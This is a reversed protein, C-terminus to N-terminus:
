TLVESILLVPPKFGTEVQEVKEFCAVFGCKRPIVSLPFPLFLLVFLLLLLLLLLLPSQRLRPSSSSIPQKLDAKRCRIAARGRYPLSSFFFM